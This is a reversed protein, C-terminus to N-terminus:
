IGFVERVFALIYGRFLYAQNKPASLFNQNRGTELAYLFAERAFYYTAGIQRSKLFLEVRHGADLRTAQQAQGCATALGDTAQLQGVDGEGAGIAVLVTVQLSVTVAVVAHPRIVVVDIAGLLLLGNGTTVVVELVQAM